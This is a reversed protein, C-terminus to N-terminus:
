SSFHLSFQGWFSRPAVTRDSNQFKEQIKKGITRMFSSQSKQFKSFQYKLLNQENENVHSGMPAFM